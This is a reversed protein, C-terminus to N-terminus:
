RPAALINRILRESLLLRNAIARRGWGQAALKEIEARQEDTATLRERGRARAGPKPPKRADARGIWGQRARGKWDAVRCRVCKVKRVHSPSRYRERGCGPCKVVTGTKVHALFCEMDCYNLYAGRAAYSPSRRPLEKGCHRCAVNTPLEPYQPAPGMRTELGLEHVDRWITSTGVGLKEGLEPMTYKGTPYLAAVKAQRKAFPFDALLELVSTCLTEALAGRVRPSPKAKGREIRKVHSTSVGVQQALAEQTLGYSKRRARLLSGAPAATADVIARSPRETVAAKM